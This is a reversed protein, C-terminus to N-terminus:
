WTQGDKIFVHPIRKGVLCLIEYSITGALDALLEATVESNTGNGFVIVEDGVNINNVSTVDIMCQDMCIRGIVPVIKGGATMSAKCSLARLYGDGYGIPITAIKTKENHTVFNFGYSVSTGRPVENIRTVRAKLTMAPIIDIDGACSYKSPSYGYAAIGLRVMDLQYQPFKLISASNAMHKVPVSLGKKELCEVMNMFTLYQSKTIKKAGHGIDACAFHSYIGEIEINQMDAIKLIEEVSEDTVNFGIRSMGSDIKIHIKATKGVKIAAASLAAAYDAYFVTTILNHELVLPIDLCDTAGLVLIPSMINDQRLTIAEHIEAVALMKVGCDLMTKAVMTAGHGYADAKVVGMIMTEDKLHKRVENINHVIADLNIEAWARTTKESNM